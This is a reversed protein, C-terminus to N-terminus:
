PFFKMVDGHNKSFVVTVDPFQRQVQSALVPMMPNETHFHGADILNLGLEMATRFQNYKLDSTVFTDCGAELVLEMAGGCAGGGVAVKRVLRGGDVYRLGPCGLRDKVTKLFDELPQQPLLGARLLGYPEPGEQPDLIQLEELGLTQALVQNVGQPAMDLNTHANIAAIQHRALELICRGTQTTDNVAKLGEGFILPHHTLILDAKMAAAERIVSEFPDLAVLIRTVPWQGSGFLLGVNDWPEAMTRPALSEVFSLVDAVTTM